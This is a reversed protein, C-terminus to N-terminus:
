PTGGLGDLAVSGDATPLFPRGGQLVFRGFEAGGRTVIPIEAAAKDVQLKYEANELSLLTRGRAVADGEEAHMAAVVGKVRALVQATKEAERRVEDAM